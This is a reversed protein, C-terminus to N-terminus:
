SEKVEFGGDKTKLDVYPFQMSQSSVRQDGDPDVISSTTSSRSVARARRGILSEKTM